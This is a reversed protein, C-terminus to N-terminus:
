GLIFTYQDCANHIFITATTESLISLYCCKNCALECELFTGSEQVSHMTACTVPHLRLHDLKSTKTVLNYANLLLYM